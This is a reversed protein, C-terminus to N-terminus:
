IKVWIRGWAMSHVIQENMSEQRLVDVLIWQVEEPTVSSVRGPEDLRAPRHHLLQQIGLHNVSSRGPGHEKTSDGIDLSATLLNAAVWGDDDSHRRRFLRRRRKKDPSNQQRRGPLLACPRDARSGSDEGQFSHEM